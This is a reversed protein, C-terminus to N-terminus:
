KLYLVHNIFFILCIENENLKIVTDKTITDQFEKKEELILEQSEKKNKM